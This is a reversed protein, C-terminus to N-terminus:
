RFVMDFGVAFIAADIVVHSVWPAYLSGTRHYLWAWVAGGVAVCLSFPLAATWFRGPFYVGLIIVHHAMFALSSLVVAVGFPLWRRLWGFVFWRWYYEEFLSHGLCVGVAFLLYPVPSSIGFERLEGAVRAPTDALLDTSFRLVEYLGFMCMGVLLGFGLGLLLGRRDPLRPRLQERATLWVYVLPFLFQIAKGAAIARLVAPNVGEGSGALVVFYIWAMFTPFTMAFALACLDRKV